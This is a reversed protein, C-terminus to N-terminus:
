RRRTRRRHSDLMYLIDGTKDFGAPGTTMADMADIKIFEKWEGKNNNQGLM